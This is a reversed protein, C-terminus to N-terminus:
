SADYTNRRDNGPLLPTEEGDDMDLNQLSHATPADYTEESVSPLDWSPAAPATFDRSTVQRLRWSSRRRLDALNHQEPGKKTEIIAWDILLGSLHTLHMILLRLLSNLAAFSEAEDANIGARINNEKYLGSLAIYDSEVRRINETLRESAVITNTEGHIGKIVDASCSFSLKLSGMVKIVAQKLEDSLGIPRITTSTRTRLINPAQTNERTTALSSINVYTAATDDVEGTAEIASIFYLTATTYFLRNVYILIEEFLEALKKERLTKGGWKYETFAPEILGQLTSVSAQTKILQALLYNRKALIADREEMSQGMQFLELLDSATESMENLSISVTEQMKKHAKVPFVLVMVTYGILVGISILLVRDLIHKPRVRNSKHQFTITITYTLMTLLFAYHHQPYLKRTYALGFIIFFSVVHLLIPKTGCQLCEDGGLLYIITMTMYGLFGGIITGTVRNVCKRLGDGVTPTIIIVTTAAAWLVFHMM